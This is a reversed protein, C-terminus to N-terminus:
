YSNRKTTHRTSTGVDNSSGQMALVAHSEVNRSQM